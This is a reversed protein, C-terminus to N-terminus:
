DYKLPGLISNYINRVVTIPCRGRLCRYQISSSFFSVQETVSSVNYYFLTVHIFILSRVQEVSRASFLSLLFVFSFSVSFVKLPGFFDPNFPEAVLNSLVSSLM